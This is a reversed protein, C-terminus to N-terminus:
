RSTSEWILDPSDMPLQDISGEVGRASEFFALGSTRVLQTFSEEDIYDEGCGDDDSFLM